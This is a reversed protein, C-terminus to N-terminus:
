LYIISHKDTNYSSNYILHKMKESFKQINLSHYRDESYFENMIFSVFQEVINDVEVKYILYWDEFKFKKM